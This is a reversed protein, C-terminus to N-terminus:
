RLFNSKEIISNDNMHESRKAIAVIKDNYDNFGEYATSRDIAYPLAMLFEKSAKLGSEDRDFFTDIFTFNKAKEIGENLLAVTNLVIASHEDAPHGAKWSLFNLYGEFVVVKKPHGQIFTIAKHGLCGKFYKNRVEWAHRQNKWGAAYYNKREGKENQVFYYVETLFEKGVEYLERKKLYETIAPHCGIPKTEVVVYNPIKVAIRPRASRKEIVSLNCLSQIKEVVEGFSANHWIAIGLDIINGGQRTGHDFWVGLEDNVSFSPKTDNERLMSYYIRERGTKRVPQHGLRSLFDVLSARDKLEKAALQISM